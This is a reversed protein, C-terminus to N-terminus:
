YLTSALRRETIRDFERIDAAIYDHAAMLVTIEAAPANNRLAIVLRDVILKYEDAKTLPMEHTNM